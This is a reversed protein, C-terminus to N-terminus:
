QFLCYVSKVDLGVPRINVQSETSASVAPLNQASQSFATMQVTEVLVQIGQLVSLWQLLGVSLSKGEYSAVETEQLVPHLVVFYLTNVADQGVQADATVM